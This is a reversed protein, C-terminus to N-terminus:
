EGTLISYFSWSAVGNDKVCLSPQGYCGACEASTFRINAAASNGPVANDILLTNTAAGLEPIAASGTLKENILACIEERIQHATLIADPQTSPTWEVDNFSGIYWGPPPDTNNQAVSDNQLHPRIAGGGEPHYYKEFDAGTAFGAADDPAAFNVNGLRTGTFLMQDLTQKMQAPTQMIQSAYLTAREGSLADRESTDSSTSLAFGLAAFLAVAILIYIMANGRENIDSFATGKDSM